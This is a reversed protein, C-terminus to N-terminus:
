LMPPIKAETGRTAIGSITITLMIKWFGSCSSILLVNVSDALFCAMNISVSVASSVTFLALASPMMCCLHSDNLALIAFSASLDLDTLNLDVLEALRLGSSYLLELMARDRLDAPKDGKFDLLRAMQDADLTDPLRKAARPASVGGGCAVVCTAIGLTHADRWRMGWAYRGPARDRSPAGSRASSARDGSVRRGIQGPGVRARRRGQGGCRDVRSRAM